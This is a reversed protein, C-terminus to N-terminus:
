EEDNEECWDEYAVELKAWREEAEEVSAYVEVTVFGQSNTLLIAKEEKFLAFWGFTEAEGLDADQGSDLSAEWLREALFCSFKASTGAWNAHNHMEQWQDWDVEFSTEAVRYLSEGAVDLANTTYQDDSDIFKLLKGYETGFIAWGKRAPWDNMRHLYVPVAFRGM